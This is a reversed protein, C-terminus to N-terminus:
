VCSFFGTSAAAARAVKSTITSSSRTDRAASIPSYKTARSCAIAAGSEREDTVDPSGPQQHADFERRGVTRRGHIGGVRATRPVPVRSDRLTLM